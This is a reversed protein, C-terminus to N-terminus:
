SPGERLVMKFILQPRQAIQLGKRVHVDVPDGDHTARKAPNLRHERNLPAIAVPGSHIERRGSFGPLARRRQARAEHSGGPFRRHWDKKQLRFVIMIESWVADQAFFNSFGTLGYLYFNIWRDTGTNSLAVTETNATRLNPTFVNKAEQLRM